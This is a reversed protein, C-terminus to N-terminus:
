EMGRELRRAGVWSAAFAIFCTGFLLAYAWASRDGGRQVGWVAVLLQLPAAILAARVQGARLFAWGLAALTAAAQVMILESVSRVAGINALLFIAGADILDRVLHEEARHTMRTEQAAARQAAEARLRAIERPTDM